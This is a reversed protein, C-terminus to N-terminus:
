IIRSTDMDGRIVEGREENRSGGDEEWKRRQEDTLKKWVDKEGKMKRMMWQFPKLPSVPPGNVEGKHGGFNDNVYMKSEIFAHLSALREEPTMPVQSPRRTARAYSPLRPEGADPRRTYQPLLENAHELADDDPFAPPTELNNNNNNNNNGPADVPDSHPAAAPPTNETAAPGLPELPEPVTSAPSSM